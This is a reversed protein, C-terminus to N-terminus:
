ATPRPQSTLLGKARLFDLNLMMPFPGFRKGGPDPHRFKLAQEIQDRDRSDRVLLERRVAEPVIVTAFLSFPLWAMDIRALGIIPGTNCVVPRAFFPSM